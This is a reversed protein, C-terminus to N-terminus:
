KYRQIELWSVAIGMLVKRLGLYVPSMRMCGRVTANCCRTIPDNHMVMMVGALSRRDQIPCRVARPDHTREDCVVRNTADAVLGPLALLLMLKLNQSQEVFRALAMQMCIVAVPGIMDLLVYASTVQPCGAARWTACIFPATRCPRCPVNPQDGKGNGMRMALCVLVDSERDNYQLLLEVARVGLERVRLDPLPMPDSLCKWIKGSTNAPITHNYRAFRVIQGALARM